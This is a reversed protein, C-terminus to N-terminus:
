PQIKIGIKKQDQVTRTHSSHETMFVTISHHRILKHAILHGKFDQM